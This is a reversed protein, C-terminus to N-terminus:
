RRGSPSKAQGPHQRDENLDLLDNLFYVSSSCLCFCLLALSASVVSSVDLYSHSVLLPLLLLVSKAWQHPRM